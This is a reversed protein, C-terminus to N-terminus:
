EEPVCVTFCGFGALARGRERGRWLIWVDARDPDEFEWGAFRKVQRFAATENRYEVTSVFTEPPTQAYFLAFIYPQNVTDTVYVTEADLTEAYAVAEGLGPFFNVEGRGGFVRVYSAGFVLACALAGAAPLAAWSGLRSLVLHFGVASCYILPLWLLNLRNINGRILFACLLGCLLAHRMPAEMQRDKRCLCSMVAGILAFPLGFLYFIGGQAIPLANWRLGDSQTWLIRLFARFNEAASAGGFVSTATQRAETLKPLTLGFLRLEPWGFLNLAQTLAIPAALLLFLALATFFPGPRLGKRLWLLSCLLFPPLFFFATGYAYLSLALVAAAGTLAWPRERSRQILRLGAMLFCPFLNSELAWRSMMIHWPNVALLALATLGFRHGRARWAFRWFLWLSLCGALANPLRLATENLGLLALFPISLYSMLANQGSGWATLLVPYSDGCRDMGATLIAWADYGASAEDQNLGAPLSGCLALRLACGLLLLLCVLLRERRDVFELYRDKLMDIGKEM